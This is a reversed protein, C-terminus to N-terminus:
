SRIRENDKALERVDEIACQIAITEQKTLKVKSSAFKEKLRNM